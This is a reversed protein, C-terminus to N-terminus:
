QDAQYKHCGLSGYHACRVHKARNGPFFLREAKGRDEVGVSISQACDDFARRPLGVAQTIMSATNPSERFNSLPLPVKVTTRKLTRRM